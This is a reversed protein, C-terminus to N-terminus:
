LVREPRRTEAARTGAQKVAIRKEIWDLMEDAEDVHTETRLVFLPLPAPRPAAPTQPQEESLPPVCAELKVWDKETTILAGAGARRALKQVREWGSRSYRHHDRFCVTGAAAMGADKLSRWFSAPNGVGCFAFWRKRRAEHWPLAAGSAAELAGAPEFRAQFVPAATNLEALRRRLAAYRRGPEARTLIAAGARALASAPERHRGLPLLADEIPLTVDALVVDLDRALRHHQFGDDLVFVDVPRRKEIESGTQWRDAGIGVPVELGREAFRRLLLQAEDGTQEVAATEGPWVIRPERGSRRYGRTLVATRCGRECLREVLWAVLPTKGSGGASLSGICVTFAGLRKRQLWGREYATRHLAAGARWLLALPGLAGKAVLGPRARPLAEEWLGEAERAARRSAGRHAQAAERAREGMAAAREPGELLRELAGALEEPAGIQVMAEREILQEAIARFNQMFPGVVIPRSWVAPELVNHGGWGKLSGGVCVVDARRYCASLEGLTDLLLVGPLRFEQPAQGALESRRVFAVGAEKLLQAVEDFRQPHRPALALLARPRKCALELFARLVPAEEDERTSGAVILPAPAIKALLAAAERPLEGSGPEFDYKLNGGVSVRDPAAGAAIWRERDLPSQALIRDAHELVGSFFFRLRRYRPAALDSIRGNVVLVGAGSKKAERFLNPWIETEMVVLLRPRLTSCVRRVAWPLDVPAYFVGDVLGSLKEQAMRQGTPTATSVVIPTKPFAERLKAALPACSLAEGVSVAHLWIGGGGTERFSRPLLGLREGTRRWPQGRLVGRILIGPLLLPSVLGLVLNYALRGV